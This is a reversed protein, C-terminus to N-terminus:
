ATETADKKRQQKILYGIGLVFLVGAVNIPLHITKILAQDVYDTLVPDALMMSAAVWGLLGAGAWVLLPFRNLIYMVVGSGAVILPISIVLGIMMLIMNDKAIAAIALVNDLSMVIDAIAITRVAQFLRDSSVIGSSHSDADDIILKVSVWFLLLGGILRLMPTDLLYALLFTFLIRLGVAAGAGLIMGMRKQQPPLDRCALAIILANDGSLLINIWMIQSLSILFAMDFTM